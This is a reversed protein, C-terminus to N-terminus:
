QKEKSKEYTRREKSNLERASILRTGPEREAFSVLLYRRKESEGIIIYRQEGISHDPDKFIIFLPDVFVTTAEEFVVDHDEINSDAKASDWEFRGYTIDPAQSM